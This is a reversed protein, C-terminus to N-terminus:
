FILDYRHRSLTHCPFLTWQRRAAEPALTALAGDRAQADRFIGFLASGSGSLSAGLAGAALLREKIAGLEPHRPFLVAEFRNFLTGALQEPRPATGPPWPRQALPRRSSAAGPRDLNEGALGYAEATSISFGPMAVLLELRPLGDLPLLKEGIGRALVPRPNLFFPVDAGLELALDKVRGPSLPHGDRRNLLTLMGGANGSGGGLGAGAPIRKRLRLHMNIPAGVASGYARAARGALNQEPNQPVAIQPARNEPLARSPQAQEIELSLGSPDQKQLLFISDFISVPALVLEVEHYGNELRGLIELHLTIKAPTDVRFLGQTKLDSRM